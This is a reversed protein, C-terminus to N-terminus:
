VGPSYRQLNRATLQANVYELNGSSNGVFRLPIVDPFQVLFEEWAAPFYREFQGSCMYHTPIADTPGDAPVLAVGFQSPGAGANEWFTDAATKNTAPIIPSNFTAM